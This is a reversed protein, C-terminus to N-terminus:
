GVFMIVRSVHLASRAPTTLLSNWLHPLTTGIAHGLGDMYPITVYM